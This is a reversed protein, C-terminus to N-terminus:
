DCISEIKQEYFTKVENAAKSMTKQLLLKLQM